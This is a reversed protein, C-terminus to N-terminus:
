AALLPWRPRVDFAHDANPMREAAFAETADSLAHLADDIAIRDSRARVSRLADVRRDIQARDAPSLLEGDAALASALAALLRDAEVQVERLAREVMRIREIETGMEERAIRFAEGM